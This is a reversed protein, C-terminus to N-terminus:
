PSKTVLEQNQDRMEWSQNSDLKSTLVGEEKEEEEESKNIESVIYIYIIYINSRSFNYM